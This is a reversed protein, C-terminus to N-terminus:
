GNIVETSLVGTNSVKVAWLSDDPAQLVIVDKTLISGAPIFVEGGAEVVIEGDM